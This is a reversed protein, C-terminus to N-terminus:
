KLWRWSALRAVQYRKCTELAIWGSLEVGLLLMPIIHLLFELNVSRSDGTIFVNRKSCILADDLALCNDISDDM